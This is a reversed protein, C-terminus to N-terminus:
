ATTTTGIFDLLFSIRRAALDGSLQSYQRVFATLTLGFSEDAIESATRRM